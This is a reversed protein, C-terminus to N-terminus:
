KKVQCQVFVAAKAVASLGRTNKKKEKKKEDQKSGAEGCDEEIEKHIKANNVEQAISVALPTISSLLHPHRQAAAGSSLERELVQLVPPPSQGDM